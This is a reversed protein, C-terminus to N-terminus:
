HFCMSAETGWKVAIQCFIWHKWECKDPACCFLRTQGREFEYSFNLGSLLSAFSPSAIAIELRFSDIVWESVWQGVWGSVSLPLHQSISDCRFFPIWWSTATFKLLQTRTQNLQTSRQLQCLNTCEANTKQTLDQYYKHQNDEYMTNQLKYKHRTEEHLQTKVTAKGLCRSSCGRDCM